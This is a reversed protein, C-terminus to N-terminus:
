YVKHFNGLLNFMELLFVCVCVCTYISYRYDEYLTEKEKYNIHQILM